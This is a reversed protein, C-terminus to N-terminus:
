LDPNLRALEEFLERARPDLSAPPRIQIVAHLDGVPTRGSAPVGRGRLRFRQGSRTGPPLNITARGDLTPVDITGGLTAKTVGVPVECVLDRGEREFLPDPDVAVVLYADGAGGGKSGADGKGALRVKGGNEIGPPIRVKIREQVRGRGSGGCNPCPPGSLRGSGRCRGCTLSVRMGQRRQNRRGSGGCDPCISEGSTARTGAGGCGDCASQRPITLELTTGRVAERFPVRVEFMLDNGPRPATHEGGFGSGFMNLVDSLDGFGFGANRFDFGAFPDFEPGFAEHGGRDYKARKESDSLVAFAEAVEKFKEEAAKDGSNVDPHYKRALKRYASKIAKDSADASVGLIEYYDKKGTRL